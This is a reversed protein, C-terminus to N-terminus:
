NVILAYSGNKGKFIKKVKKEIKKEIPHLKMSPTEGQINVLNPDAGRKILYRIMKLNGSSVAMHLATTGRENRFNIDVGCDLLKKVIRVHKNQAALLWPWTGNKDTVNILPKLLDVVIPNSNIWFLLSSTLPHFGSKNFTHINAGYKLLVKACTYRKKKIMFHFPTHGEDDRYEINAGAKILMRVISPKEAFHLPSKLNVCLNPNAKLKLLKKVM